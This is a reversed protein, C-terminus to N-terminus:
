VKTEFKTLYVLKNKLTSFFTETIANNYCNGKGSMLQKFGYHKLLNRIKNSTYQSGRDSHFIVGRVPRRNSMAMKIANTVIDATLRKMMSWGIEERNYM